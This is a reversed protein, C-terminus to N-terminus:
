RYSIFLFGNAQGTSRKPMDHGTALRGVFEGGEASAGEDRDLGGDHEANFGTSGKASFRCRPDIRLRELSEKSKSRAIISQKMQGPPVPLCVSYFIYPLGNL